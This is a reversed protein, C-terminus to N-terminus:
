PRVLKEYVGEYIQSTTQILYNQETSSFKQLQRILVAIGKKKGCHIYFNDINHSQTIM